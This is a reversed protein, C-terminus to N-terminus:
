RIDHHILGCEMLNALFAEVDAKVTDSDPCFKQQIADSLSEVSQAESLLTWCFGGTENLRTVTYDVTNLIIWEDELQTAEYNNKHVYQNM